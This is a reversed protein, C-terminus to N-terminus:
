GEEVSRSTRQVVGASAKPLRSAAAASATASAVSAAAAAAPLLQRDVILIELVDWARRNFFFLTSECYKLQPVTRAIVALEGCEDFSLDATANEQVAQVYRIFDPNTSSILQPRRPSGPNITNLIKVWVRCMGTVEIVTGILIRQAAQNGNPLSVPVQCIIFGVLPEDTIETRVALVQISGPHLDDLPKFSGNTRGFETPTANFSTDNRFFFLAARRFSRPHDRSISDDRKVRLREVDTFLCTLDYSGFLLHHRKVPQAALCAALNQQPVVAPLRRSSAARMGIGASASVAAACVTAAPAALQAPADAPTETQSSALEDRSLHASGCGVQGLQEQMGGRKPPAFLIQSFLGVILFVKKYSWM